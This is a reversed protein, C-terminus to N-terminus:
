SIGHEKVIKVKEACVIIFGPSIISSDGRALDAIGRCTGGIGPLRQSRPLRHSGDVGQQLM